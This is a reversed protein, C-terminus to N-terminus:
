SNVPSLGLDAQMGTAGRGMANISGGQKERPIGRCVAEHLNDSEVCAAVVLRMEFLDFDREIRDTVHRCRRQLWCM